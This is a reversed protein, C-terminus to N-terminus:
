EVRLALGALRVDRTLLVLAPDAQRIAVVVAPEGTSVYIARRQLPQQRVDLGALEVADNHVFHVPEAARQEVERLDHLLEVSM